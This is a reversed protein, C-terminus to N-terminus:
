ASARKRRVMPVIAHGIVPHASSGLVEVERRSSRAATSRPALSPMRVTWVMAVRQGPGPPLALSLWRGSGAVVLASALDFM